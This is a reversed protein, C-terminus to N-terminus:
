KENNDDEKKDYPEIVVYPSSIVILERNDSSIYYTNGTQQVVIGYVSKYNEDKNTNYYTIKSKTNLSLTKGLANGLSNTFAYSMLYVMVIMSIMVLFTIIMGKRNSVTSNSNTKAEKSNNENKKVTKSKGQKITIVVSIYIIFIIKGVINLFILLIISPVAELMFKIYVRKCKIDKKSFFIYDLLGTIIVAQGLIFVSYYFNNIITNLFNKSNMWNIIKYNVFITVSLNLVTVTLRWITTSFLEIISSNWIKWVLLLYLIISSLLTVYMLILNIAENNNNGTLLVIILYLIGITMLHFILYMIKINVENESVYMHLSTYFCITFLLTCGGITVILKFDFPIQNVMVDMLKGFLSNGGFYYGYIFSYGLQYFMYGIILLIASLYIHSNNTIIISKITGGIRDKLGKIKQTNNLEPEMQNVKESESESNNEIIDGDIM